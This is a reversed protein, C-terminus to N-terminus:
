GSKTYGHTSITFLLFETKNITPMNFYCYLVLELSSKVSLISTLGGVVSYCGLGDRVEFSFYKGTIDQIILISCFLLLTKMKVIGKNVGNQIFLFVCLFLRNLLQKYKQFVFGSGNNESM